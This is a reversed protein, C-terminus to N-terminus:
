TVGLHDTYIHDAPKQKEHHAQIRDHATQLAARVKDSVSVAARAIEEASIRLDAATFSTRDFRNTLEVVADDGRRRVDAIIGAVTTDVDVSSERKGALLTDFRANFDADATDLRVPM